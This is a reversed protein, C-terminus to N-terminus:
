IDGMDVWKAGIDKMLCETDCFFMGELEIVEEDEYLAHGCHTCFAVVQPEKEEDEKPLWNGFVRDFYGSM